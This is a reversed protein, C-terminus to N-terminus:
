KHVSVTQDGEIYAIYEATGASAALDKSKPKVGPIEVPRSSGEPNHAQLARINLKHGDVADVATVKLTLKGGGFVSLIKKKTGPVEAIAGTVAAGKAIVVVDGERVDESATFRLPRGEEANAPIDEALMIKFPQGDKITVPTLNAPSAKSNGPQSAAPQPPPPAPAKPAANAASAPAQQPQPPAAPQQQAVVPPQQPPAAEQKPTAKPPPPASVPAPTNAAARKPNRMVEIVSEPVGAKSLRIVEAPTLVFNTKSSRIQSAILSPSVKGEVMQIIQDNTMAEDAPPATAPATAADVPPEVPAPAPAADPAPAPQVDAVPPPPAKHHRWWASGGIAALAALGCLVGALVPGPVGKKKATGNKIGSSPVPPTTLRSRHLM